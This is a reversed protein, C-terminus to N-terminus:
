NGCCRLLLLLLLLFPGLFAISSSSFLVSKHRLPGYVITTRLLFSFARAFHTQRRFFARQPFNERVSAKPEARVICTLDAKGGPWAHVTRVSSTVEPPDTHRVAFINLNSVYSPAVFCPHNVTSKCLVRLEIQDASMSGVGNSATCVYTGADGKAVNPIHLIPGKPRLSSISGGVGGSVGRAYEGNQFSCFFALTQVFKLCHRSSQCSPRPFNKSNGWRAVVRFQSFDGKGRM